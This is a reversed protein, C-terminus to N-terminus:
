HETACLQNARVGMTEDNYDHEWRIDLYKKFFFFIYKKIIISSGAQEPPLVDTQSLHCTPPKM